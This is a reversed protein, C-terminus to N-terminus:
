FLAIALGFAVSVTGAFILFDPLFTILNDGLQNDRTPIIINNDYFNAYMM